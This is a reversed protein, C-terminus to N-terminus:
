GRKGGACLAVWHDPRFEQLEKEFRLLDPPDHSFDADMQYVVEYGQSLAYEFGRCYATGLGLKGSREILHIRNDTEMRQKVIAATGDPSADDIVLIHLEPLVAHLSDLMRAINQHENYTPICVISKM